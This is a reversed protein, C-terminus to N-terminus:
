LCREMAASLFITAGSYKRVFAGCLLNNECKRQFVPRFLTSAHVHNTSSKCIFHVKWQFVESCSPKILVSPTYAACVWVFCLNDDFESLGKIQQCGCSSATQQNKPQQNQCTKKEDGAGFQTWKVRFHWWYKLSSRQRRQTHEVGAFFAIFSCERFDKEAVSSLLHRVKTSFWESRETKALEIQIRLIKETRMWSQSATRLVSRERHSLHLGSSDFWANIGNVLLAM